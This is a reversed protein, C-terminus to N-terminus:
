VLQAEPESSEPQAQAQAPQAETEPQQAGQAQRQYRAAARGSEIDDLVILRVWPALKLGHSLKRVAAAREPTLGLRVNHDATRAGVEARPRAKRGRAIADHVASRVLESLNVGYFKAAKRVLGDEEETLRLKFSTGM